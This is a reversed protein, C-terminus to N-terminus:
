YVQRLEEVPLAALLLEQQLVVLHPHDVQLLAPLQYGAQPRPSCLFLERHVLRQALVQPLSESVLYELVPHQEVVLPLVRMLPLLALVQPRVLVQLQAGALLQSALVPVVALLREVALLQEVSLLQEVALLQEM